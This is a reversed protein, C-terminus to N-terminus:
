FCFLTRKRGPVAVYVNPRAVTYVCVEASYTTVKAGESYGIAEYLKAREAALEEETIIYNNNLQFPTTLTLSNRQRGTGYLYLDGYM